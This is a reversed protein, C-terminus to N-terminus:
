KRFYERLEGITSHTDILYQQLDNVQHTADLGIETYNLYSTLSNVEEDTLLGKSQLISILKSVRREHNDIIPLLNYQFASKASSEYPEDNVIYLRINYSCDYIFTGLFGSYSVEDIKYETQSSLKINEKYFKYFSEFEEKASFNLDMIVSAGTFVLDRLVLEYTDLKLIAM